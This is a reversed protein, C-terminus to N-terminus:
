LGIIPPETQLRLLKVQNRGAEKAHYLAKDATEVLQEPSRCSGPYAAVGLSATINRFGELRVAAIQFRIREAVPLAEDITHNALLVSFEEGGYRYSNGKDRCVNKVNEAVVILVRDGGPHGYTDNFSKFHDIHLMLLALPHEDTAQNGLAILDQNFEARSFIPLLVDMQKKAVKVADAMGFRRLRIRGAQTIQLNAVAQPTRDIGGRLILGKVNGEQELADVAKYWDREEVKSYESLDNKITDFAVIDPYADNLRELIKKALDENYMFVKGENGRMYYFRKYLRVSSLLM